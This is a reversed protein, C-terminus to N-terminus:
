KTQSINEKLLKDLEEKDINLKQKPLQSDKSINNINELTDVTIKPVKISDHLQEVNYIGPNLLILSTM